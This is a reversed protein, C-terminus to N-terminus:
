KGSGYRAKGRTTMESGLELVKRQPAPATKDANRILDANAEADAKAKDADAVLKRAAELSNKEAPEAKKAAKAERELDKDGDADLNANKEAEEKKKKEEEIANCMDMHKQVLENVSMEDDGMKVMHDGNAYGHMNEIRDQAEVLANITMEKGSKPLVVSIGSLDQENEVKTKKFFKIMPADGTPEESNAVRELELEKQGNYAKFEEPTLIISEAYRPNPVIALHDYEGSMVEKDYELGHWIGGGAKANVIYANSLKWGNAIAAHGKDSTVIFKAWYKGDAQNFFSEIVYGDEKGKGLDEVNVEDVHHVYVPKGPYTSNMQKIADESILIRYPDKGPERYEALGEVMHMGYFIAPYKSANKIIM